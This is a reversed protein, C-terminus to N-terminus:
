FMTYLNGTEMKNGQTFGLNMDIKFRANYLEEKTTKETNAAHTPTASLRTEATYM